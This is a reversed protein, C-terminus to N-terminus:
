NSSKAIERTIKTINTELKEIKSNIRLNNYFLFIVSLYVLVDIGRGVGFIEGLNDLIRSPLWIVILAIGWFVLWLLIRVLSTKDRIIKVILQGLIIVIIGTAIIQIVM